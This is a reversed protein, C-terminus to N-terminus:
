QLCCYFFVFIYCAKGLVSCWKFFLVKLYRMECHFIWWLHANSCGNAKLGHKSLFFFLDTLFSRSALLCLWAYKQVISYPLSLCPILDTANLCNFEEVTFTWGLATHLPDIQCFIAGVTRAARAVQKTPMVLISEDLCEKIITNWHTHETDFSHFM